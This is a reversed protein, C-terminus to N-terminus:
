GEQKKMGKEVLLKLIQPTLIKLVVALIAGPLLIAEVAKKDL